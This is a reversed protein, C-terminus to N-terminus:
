RQPFGAQRGEEAFTLQRIGRAYRSQKVQLRISPISPKRQPPRLAARLTAAALQNITDISQHFSTSFASHRAVTSVPGSLFSSRSLGLLAIERIVERLADTVSAVTSLDYASLMKKLADNM